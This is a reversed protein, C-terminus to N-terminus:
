TVFFVRGQVLLREGKQQSLPVEGYVSTVSLLYGPYGHYAQFVKKTLFTQSVQPLEHYFSILILESSLGKLLFFHCAICLGSFWSMPTASLYDRNKKAHLLQLTLLFPHSLKTLTEIVRLVLPLNLPPVRPAPGWKNQTFFFFDCSSSFGVPFRFQGRGEDM